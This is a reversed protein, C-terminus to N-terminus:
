IKSQYYKWQIEKYIDYFVPLVALLAMIGTRTGNGTLIGGISLLLAFFIVINDPFTWHYTLYSTRGAKGYGRAEMSLATNVSDELMVSLLVSLIIGAYRLKGVEKELSWTHWVEKIKDIKHIFKDYYCFVMSLILGTVPFHRGTMWIIKQNDFVANFLRYWLLLSVVMFGMCIGYELSELTLPVDNVYLFPTEGQHYFILNFIGFGLIMVLYTRLAKAFARIGETYIVHVSLALFLIVMSKNYSAMMILILMGLFYVGTSIPHLERFYNTM